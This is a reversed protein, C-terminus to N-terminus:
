RRPRFPPPAYPPPPIIGRTLEALKKLVDITTTKTPLLRFRESRRRRM